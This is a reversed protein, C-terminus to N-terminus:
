RPRGGGPETHESEAEEDREHVAGENPSDEMGVDSDDDPAPHIDACGGTAAGVGLALVLALTHPLQILDRRGMRRKDLM